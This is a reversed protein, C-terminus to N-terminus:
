AVHRLRDTASAPLRKPLLLTLVGAHLEAQLAAYDLNHGLRLRLQYDRQASELHLSQWNVRVVHTKRATVILDPGRAEIAVSNADVGPVYVVLKIADPLERCDFSPQRFKAQAPSEVPRSRHSPKLPHIITHM